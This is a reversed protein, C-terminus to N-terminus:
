LNEVISRINEGKNPLLDRLFFHIFYAEPLVEDVVGKYLTNWKWPLRQLKMKEKRIWWNLMTQDTSWKWPGKGDVFDKFESRMIFERPTQGKLYQAFSKNMVMLGMNYFEFGLQNPAFDVKKSLQAYQMASYNKIKQKYQDTLPMDREIVGAFDVTPDVDDFINPAQNTIFIDADVIAIQDYDKFYEFANEKEYIPLFGGHKEYSEKSRNTVFVDPKIRLIPDRQVKHDINYKNCYEKVSEVCTDYLNSRAGLYVQYILRKM